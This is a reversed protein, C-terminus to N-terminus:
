YAFAMNKNPPPMYLYYFWFLICVIELGLRLRDSPKDYYHVRVVSSSFFERMHGGTSFESDWFMVIVQDLQLNWMELTVRLRRTQSDIWNNSLLNALNATANDPDLPVDVFYGQNVLSVFGYSRESLDLPIVQVFARSYEFRFNSREVLLLWTGKQLNFPLRKNLHRKASLRLVMHVLM